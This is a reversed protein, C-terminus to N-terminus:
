RQPPSPSASELPPGPPGTGKEFYVPYLCVSPLFMRTAVPIVIRQSLGVALASMTSALLQLACNPRGAKLMSHSTANTCCYLQWEPLTFLCHVSLCIRIGEERNGGGKSFRGSSQSTMNNPDRMRRCANLWLPRVVLVNLHAINASIVKQFGSLRLM